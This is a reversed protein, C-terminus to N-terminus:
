WEVPNLGYLRALEEYVAPAQAASRKPREFFVETVVAFFEAPDSAGYGDILTSPQDATARLSRGDGDGLAAQM